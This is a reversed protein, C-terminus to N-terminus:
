DLGGALDRRRPLLRLESDPDFLAGEVDYGLAAAIDPVAGAVRALGAVPGTALLAGTIEEETAGAALARSTGWELCVSPAGIAVLVGLQVLAATKPDLLESTPLALSLGAQGEVIREDIIALKRLESGTCSPSGPLLV